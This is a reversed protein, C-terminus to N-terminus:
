VYGDLKKIASRYEEWQGIDIYENENVPYTVVKHSQERLADMLTPMDFRTNDPILALAEKSFLYVGTNITFTYEPKERIETIEGGEKYEIVGYPIKYHQISSLVSLVAGQEKHNRLVDEFNAKVIVDCNSVIFYDPLQDELLKIAGATGLFEKEYLYTCQEKYSTSNLYAEIMEGKYNVTLLFQKVGQTDFQDMIVELISKDKIPILPKPLITTFPELRTGKGGAMIVVPVDVNGKSIPKLKQGSFVHNLTIYDTVRGEDLIPIINIKHEIFIAQAVELYYENRSMSIPNLNYIGKIDGSLDNGKLLYRRIDGDSIAGLLIDQDDVVLLVKEATQDLRKLVDIVSMTESILLDRKIIKNQVM